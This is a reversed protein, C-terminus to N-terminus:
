LFKNMYEYLETKTHGSSNYIGSHLSNHGVKKIKIAWNTLRGSMDDYHTQIEIVHQGMENM